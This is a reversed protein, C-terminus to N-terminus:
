GHGLQSRNGQLDVVQASPPTKLAAVSGVWAIRGNDLIMAAHAVPARGTGDILTFNKLVKVEALLSTACLLVLGAAVSNRIRGLM